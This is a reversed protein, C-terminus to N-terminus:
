QKTSSQLKLLIHILIFIVIFVFFIIGPINGYNFLQFIEYLIGEYLSTFDHYLFVHRYFEYILEGLGKEWYRSYRFELIHLILNATTYSILLSLLFTINTKSRFIAKYIKKIIEELTM